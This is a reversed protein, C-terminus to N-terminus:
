NPLDLIKEFLSLSEPNALADKNKVEKGHIVHKVALEAIKGSVTRPIDTVAVIRAPVHRPSAGQKIKHRILQQLEETLQKKAQLRVFLIVQVDGAVEHGVVVAELIDEITEVQRYIEATGIRVGGPNLTTDSRGYIILGNHKTLAAYDGHCWISKFREFYAKKYKTKAEDQWFYIPQSPFPATCVLEGKEDIAAPLGNDNFIEVKMGFGRQQLEGRYVPKTPNGLAFCSIIDTGGSISALCVDSKIHQYVFDYSEPLLPSGTSLIAYLNALDKDEKPKYGTKELSALYKASTGFVNMKYEEAYQWLVQPSPYMPSGDYLLLSAGVALASVLWNWMMWGCTTYYFIRDGYKLNTHLIHEKLHQILTGGVSHVICKPIGTTGSSYMIVLPHEFSVQEFIIERTSSPALFEEWWSANPIASIDTTSSTYNTLIIKELTPLQKVIEAVKDRCDILKGNYFYGEVSFLVKPEIQGLRDLVGQVGFDPSCSSWIAGISSTALMAIVTQPLNPMFAAVRDGKSVGLDRLSKALRAVQHYLEQFSYNWEIQDEGRFAIALEEDQRKLLNEAFNLQSGVFWKTNLMDAQNVLVQDWPKSAKIQSFHWFLSWFDEPQAISWEYLADSDALMLNTQQQIFNIFKSIQSNNIHEKSPKWEISHM